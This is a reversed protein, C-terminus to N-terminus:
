RADQEMKVGVFYGIIFGAIAGIVLAVAGGSTAFFSILFGFVTFLIAWVIRGKTRQSSSIAAPKRYEHHGPRKRSEPM